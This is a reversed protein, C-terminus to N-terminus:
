AITTIKLVHVVQMNKMKNFIPYKKQNNGM